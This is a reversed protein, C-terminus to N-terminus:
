TTINASGSTNITEEEYQHVADDAPFIHGVAPGCDVPSSWGVDIRITKGIGGALRALRSYRHRYNLVAGPKFRGTGVPAM